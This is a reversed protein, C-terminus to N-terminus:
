IVGGLSIPSTAATAEFLTQGNPGVVEISLRQARPIIKSYPLEFETLRRPQSGTPRYTGHYDWHGRHGNSAKRTDAQQVKIRVTAKSSTVKCGAEAPLRFWELPKELTAIAAEVAAKREPTNLGTESGTIDAGPAQFEVSVGNGEIAFNLVGRGQEHAGLRRMQEQAVVPPAALLSLAILFPASKM